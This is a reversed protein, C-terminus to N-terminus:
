NSLFKIDTITGELLIEEPLMMKLVFSNGKIQVYGKNVKLKLETDSYTVLGQHNEIYVHIQGIVTIRPLELIVDSPLAFSNILLSQVRQRFKKM